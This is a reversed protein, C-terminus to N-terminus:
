GAALVRFLERLEDDIESEAQVTKRVEARLLERYRRRVRTVHSRLTSALMGLEAALEDYSPPPAASGGLFIKVRQFVSRKGDDAYEAALRELAARVLAEAWTREFLHTEGTPGHSCHSQFLSEAAEVRAEDLSLFIEGGGRKLRTAHSYVDALFNKLAALLFTRFRGKAPDARAYVEDEIFHAFFSQTLDQADHVSYGRMRVFAYLPSWYTQCLEALAARAREPDDAGTSAAIIMSWHTASFRDDQSPDSVVPLPNVGALNAFRPVFGLAYFASSFKKCRLRL